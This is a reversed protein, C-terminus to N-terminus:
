FHEFKPLQFIKLFKAQRLEQISHIHIYKMVNIYKNFHEVITVIPEHVEINLKFDRNAM